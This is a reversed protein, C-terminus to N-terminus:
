RGARRSRWKRAGSRGLSVLVALLVGTAFGEARLVNAAFGVDIDHRHNWIEVIKGDKFRFVNIIPVPNRGGLMVLTMLWTQPAYEWEWRTAVLDGEAIQFDIHGGMNGNQWFREAIQKQEDAPEQVGKRDGIDHVVHTPAVLEDVAAPNHSFWVQEYFRRALAKNAEEDQGFAAWPTSLLVILMMSFPTIRRALLTLHTMM